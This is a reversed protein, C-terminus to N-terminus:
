GIVLLPAFYWAGVKLADYSDGSKASRFMFSEYTKWMSEPYMHKYLPVDPDAPAIKTIKFIAGKKFFLLYKLAYGGFDYFWFFEIWGFFGLTAVLPEFSDWRFLRNQLLYQWINAVKSDMYEPNMFYAIAIASIAVRLAVTRPDAM